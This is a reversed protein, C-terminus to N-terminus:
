QLLTMEIVAVDSDGPVGRKCVGWAVTNRPLWSIEMGVCIRVASINESNLSYLELLM